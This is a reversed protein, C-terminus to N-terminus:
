IGFARNLIPYESRHCKMIEIEEDPIFVEFLNAYYGPELMM